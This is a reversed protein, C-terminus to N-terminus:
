DQNFSISSLIFHLSLEFFKRKVPWGWPDRHTPRTYSGEDERGEGGPQELLSDIFAAFVNSYRELYPHFPALIM